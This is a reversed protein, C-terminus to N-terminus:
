SSPLEEVPTIIASDSAKESPLSRSNQVEVRWLVDRREQRAEMGVETRKGGRVQSGM